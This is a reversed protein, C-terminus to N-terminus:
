SALAKRVYYTNDSATVTVASYPCFSLLNSESPETLHRNRQKGTLAPKILALTFATSLDHHQQPRVNPGPQRLM